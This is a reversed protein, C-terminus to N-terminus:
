VKEVCTQCVTEPLPVDLRMYGYVVKNCRNCRAKVVCCRDTTAKVKAM